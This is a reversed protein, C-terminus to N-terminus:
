NGCGDTRKKGSDTDCAHVPEHPEIHQRHRAAGHFCRAIDISQQEVLGARDGKAIPLRGLKASDPMASRSRASAACSAESESSVGSPREMTTRAFSFYPMRPRSM